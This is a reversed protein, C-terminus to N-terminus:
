INKVLEDMQSVVDSSLNCRIRVSGLYKVKVKTALIQETSTDFVKATEPFTCSVGKTNAKNMYSIRVVEGKVDAVIGLYWKVCDEMWFAIIHEGCILHLNEEPQPENQPIHDCANGKDVVDCEQNEQLSKGLIGHVVNTLDAVTIVKCQRANSLYSALNEAYEDTSLNHHDRKLRFVAATPKLSMSSM